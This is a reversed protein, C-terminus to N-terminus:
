IEEISVIKRLEISRFLHKIYDDAVNIIKLEGGRDKLKRQFVAVSSLGATDFMRLKSCDIFINKYGQDYLDQLAEKFEGSNPIIVKDPLNLVAYDAHHEAQM